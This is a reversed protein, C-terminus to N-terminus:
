KGLKLNAAKALVKSFEDNFEPQHAVALGLWLWIRPLPRCDDNSYRNNGAIFLQSATAVQLIHKTIYTFRLSHFPKM